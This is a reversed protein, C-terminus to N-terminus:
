DKGQWPVLFRGVAVIVQDLAVAGIGIVIICAMTLATNLQIGAQFALGGIGPIGNNLEAAVVTTWAFGVALRIGQVLYPLASPLTVTLLRQMRSAGLSSAALLQDKKVSTMGQITAIAIPPFAALFLLWYKSEEGIGVWVVLLGIYGLPPLARLFNLCPNVITMALRSSGMLFGLVTGVIAGAGVGVAIRQLSVVLHEWLYYNSEGCVKRPSGERVPTCTNADWLANWVAGPSPLYLSDIVGSAAVAAWVATVCALTVGHIM